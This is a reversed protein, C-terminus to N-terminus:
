INPPPKDDDPLGAILELARARNASERADNALYMAILRMKDPNSMNMSLDANHLRMELSPQRVTIEVKCHRCYYQSRDPTLLGVYKGCDPLPCLVRGDPQAFAEVSERGGDSM